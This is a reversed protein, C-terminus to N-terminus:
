FVTSMHLNAIRQIRLSSVHPIRKLPGNPSGAEDIRQMQDARGCRAQRDTCRIRDQASLSGDFQVSTTQPRCIIKVEM